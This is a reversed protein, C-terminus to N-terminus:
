LLNLQESVQIRYQGHRASHMREGEGCCGSSWGHTTGYEVSVWWTSATRVTSGVEVMCDRSCPRSPLRSLTPQETWSPVNRLGTWPLGSMKRAVQFLTTQDASMRTCCNEPWIFTLTSYRSWDFVLKSAHKSSINMNITVAIHNTSHISEPFMSFM